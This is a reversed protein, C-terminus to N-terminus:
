RARRFAKSLAGTIRRRFLVGFVPGAVVYPAFVMMLIAYNLHLGLLHGEPSNTLATKCMACQASAPAAAAALAVALLVVALARRGPRKM